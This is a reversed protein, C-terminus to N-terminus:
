AWALKEKGKSEKIVSSERVILQPQLIVQQTPRDKARIRDILLDCAMAGMEYKPQAVTTLRPRAVSALLTDDYGVVAIEGPVRIGVEELAALAGIAMLDNCAFIASPPTALQLLSKAHRYGSHQRYDGELILEDRIKLGNGQLARKYGDIREAGTTVKQPGTIIGIASHGLGILHQTAQYAGEINDVVVFDCDIKVRRDALVVPVGGDLLQEVHKANVRTTTFIVGDVQKSRLLRLYSAEKQPNGDTNCLIVNYGNRHAVDEVGRAVAPFFPNTIDPLVLGITYSQKTILSRALSNPQYDMEKAVQRIRERLEKRVYGRGTLARSVTSSSVGLRKAIEYITAIPLEGRTGLSYALHGM